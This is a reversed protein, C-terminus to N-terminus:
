LMVYPVWKFVYKYYIYKSIAQMLSLLWEILLFIDSFTSPALCRPCCMICFNFENAFKKYTTRIVCICFSLFSLIYIFSYLMLIFWSITFWILFLAFLDWLHLVCLCVDGM